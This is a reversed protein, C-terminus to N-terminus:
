YNVIKLFTIFKKNNFPPSLALLVCKKGVLFLMKKFTLFFSKLFEFQIFSLELDVHFNQCAFIRSIGNASNGKM